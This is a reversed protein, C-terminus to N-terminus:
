GGVGWDGDNGGNIALFQRRAKESAATPGAPHVILPSLLKVFFRYIM